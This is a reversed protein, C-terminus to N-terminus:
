SGQPVRQEFGMVGDDAWVHEISVCKLTTRVFVYGPAYIQIVSEFYRSCPSLGRQCFQGRVRSELSM